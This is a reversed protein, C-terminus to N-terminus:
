GALGSYPDARGLIQRGADGQARLRNADLGKPFEIRYCEIGAAKLREAVKAAGREGAEDRDFAILVRRVGHRAFAALHDETLGEVGYAATVNRYGACWFTMADILAECLIVEGGSAAIGDLNWTGAHPGPLYLHLPTGKRLDNRIKRGYMEVVNGAEDVIPVVLSGTFHEHGSERMIGIRELRSRAEAGSKRNKEPLRLGLTRNAFGLKFREILEPHRLGRAELYALADPTEKLTQHYYGAVQGLLVQDDADLSVPPPLTRATSRKVAEASIPPAGERLLEVAHRFSVGRRKMVWDIPGGAASCGFCHFLNKSPTVILSATDDAHFPCRAAYDKGRKELALGAEEVLRVLSIEQRLREIESEPIRAM